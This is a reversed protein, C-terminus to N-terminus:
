AHSSSDSNRKLQRYGIDKRYFAGDFSTKACLAYAKELASELTDGVATMDLVRGGNTVLKGDVIKTGAHIIFSDPEVAAPLSIEDGKKYDQPYGGACMVVTAAYGRRIRVLSSDLRGLAIDNLAELVDSEILPMLVQCEPDGFRVNFEIVKAGSKTVMIGIYLTGRYDIGEKCLGDLVPRVINERVDKLVEETAVAAPAYAGMGGTNPGKDGDFVRKHDQSPPLMVYNRGCVMLMISAEEGELKEEVVIQRGSDGFSDGCLMERAAEVAEAKSSPVIVGKGAALGSAKVVVDFPAKEIFSKASEFDSFNEYAATPVGYKHMFDKSFAKSAELIAGNKNPGYVAVGRSRLEDALGNALPVEPGCVVLDIKRELCYSVIGQSDMVSLAVTECDRSIGGNGPACALFGLMPSKLLAKVLAHERGGSGIVLVNLKNSM